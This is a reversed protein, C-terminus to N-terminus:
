RWQLLHRMNPFACWTRIRLGPAAIRLWRRTGYQWWANVARAGYQRVDVLDPATQALAAAFSLALLGLLFLTSKVTVIKM